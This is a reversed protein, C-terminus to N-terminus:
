HRKGYRAAAGEAQQQADNKETKALYEQLRRVFIRLANGRHSVSNKEDTTLEAM